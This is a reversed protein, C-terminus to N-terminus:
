RPSPYENSVVGQQSPKESIESHPLTFRFISGEGPESEAWVVGGHREIIKQVMTLGIGTGPYEDRGHLRKFPAFIQNLQ